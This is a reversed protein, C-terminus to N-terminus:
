KAGIEWHQLATSGNDLADVSTIVLVDDYKAKLATLTFSASIEDTVTGRVIVDGVQLTWYGTKSALALWVKPAKYAAGHAMPIYISAQDAAITGGTALTNSAKRNEWTVKSIATRQYKEAGSSLYRNYLTVDANTRM